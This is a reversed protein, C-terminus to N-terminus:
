SQQGCFPASLAFLARDESGLGRPKKTWLETIRKHAKQAEERSFPLIGSRIKQGCFPALLAFFARDDSGLGRPKKTWFESIGNIHRKRRKAALLYYEPDSKNAAFLRLFRLFLV